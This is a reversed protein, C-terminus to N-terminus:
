PASRRVDLLRNHEDVSIVFIGRIGDRTVFPRLSAAPFQISVGRSDRAFVNRATGRYLRQYEDASINLPVIFEKGAM